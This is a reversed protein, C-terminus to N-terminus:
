TQSDYTEYLPVRFTLKQRKRWSLGRFDRSWMSGSVPWWRAGMAVVMAVATGGRMESPESVLLRPTIVPVAAAPLVSSM